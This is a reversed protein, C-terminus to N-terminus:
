ITIYQIMELSHGYKLPDHQM